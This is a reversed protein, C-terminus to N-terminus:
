FTPMFRNAWTFLEVLPWVLCILIGAVLVMESILPGAARNLNRAFRPEDVQKYYKLEPDDANADKVGTIMGIVHNSKHCATAWFNGLLHCTVLSAAINGAWIHLDKLGIPFTNGFLTVTTLEDEWESPVMSGLPGLEQGASYLMLGLVGTGLMGFILAFVMAGGLPNHSITHMPEGVVSDIGYKIMTKPSYIFTWFRAARPGVFGWIIRFSMIAMITYAAYVHLPFKSSRFYLSFFALVMLWHGIRVIPDWVKIFVRKHPINTDQDSM